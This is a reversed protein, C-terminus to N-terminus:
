KFVTDIKFGSFSTTRDSNLVAISEIIQPPPPGGFNRDRAFIGKRLQGMTPVLM